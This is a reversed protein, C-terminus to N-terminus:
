NQAARNPNQNEWKYLTIWAGGIFALTAALPITRDSVFFLLAATAFGLWFWPSPEQLRAFVVRVRNEGAPFFLLRTPRGNPLELPLPHDAIWQGPFGLTAPRKGACILKLDGKRGLDITYRLYHRAPPPQICLAIPGDHASQLALSIGDALMSTSPQDPDLLVSVERAKQRFCFPIFWAAFLVGSASAAFAAFDGAALLGSVILVLVYGFVTRNQRTM